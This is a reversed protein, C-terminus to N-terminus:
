QEGEILVKLSASDLPGLAADDLLAAPAKDCLGLCVHPLITIRGDRSVEGLPVGTLQEAQALLQQAGAMHCAISDCIRLVQKGVPKSFLLSYFSVLEKLQTPSLRCLEAAEDLAQDHLHGYKKQLYQLTYIAGARPEPYHAIHEALHEKEHQDLM